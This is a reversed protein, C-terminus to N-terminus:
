LPLLLDTSEIIDIQPYEQLIWENGKQQYASQDVGDGSNPTPNNIALIAEVGSLIKGFPCFGSQDLFANDKLNIFIQTTRTEPGATAFSVTGQLNSSAGVPDDVIAANWKATEVPNSSIGFQVM